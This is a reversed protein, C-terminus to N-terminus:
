LEPLLPGLVLLAELQIWRQQQLQCCCCVSWHVHLLLPLLQQQCLLPPLLQPLPPHQCHSGAAPLAAASSWQLEEAAESTRWSRLL